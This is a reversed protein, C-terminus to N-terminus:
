AVLTIVLTGEKGAYKPNKLDSVATLITSKTYGADMVMSLSVNGGDPAFARLYAKIGLRKGSDAKKPALREELWAKEDETLPLGDIVGPDEPTAAPADLETLDDMTFATQGVQAKIALVEDRAATLMIRRRRVTSKSLEGDGTLNEPSLKGEISDLLYDCEAVTAPTNLPAQKFLARMKNEQAIFQSLSMTTSREPKRHRVANNSGTLQM